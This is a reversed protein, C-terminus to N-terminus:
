LLALVARSPPNAIEMPKALRDLRLGADTASAQLSSVSSAVQAPVAIPPTASVPASNTPEVKYAPIPAAPVALVIKMAM